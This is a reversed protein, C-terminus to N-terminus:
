LVVADWAGPLRARSRETRKRRCEAGSIGQSGPCKMQRAPGQKRLACLPTVLSPIALPKSIQSVGRADSHRVLSHVTNEHGGCLWADCHVAPLNGSPSTLDWQACVHLLHRRSLM